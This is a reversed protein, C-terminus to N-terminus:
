IHTEAGSHTCQAWAQGGDRRLEALVLALIGTFWIWNMHNSPLRHPFTSYHLFKIKSLPISQLNVFSVKISKMAMKHWLEPVSRVSHVGAEEEEEDEGGERQLCLWKDEAKVREGQVGSKGLCIQISEPEHGIKSTESLRSARRNACSHTPISLAARSTKSAPIFSPHSSIPRDPLKHTKVQLM